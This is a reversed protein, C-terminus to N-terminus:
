GSNTSFVCKQPQIKRCFCQIIPSFIAWPQSQHYIMVSAFLQSHATAEVLYALNLGIRCNVAAGFNVEIIPNTHLHRPGSAPRDHGLKGTTAVLKRWVVCWVVVQEVLECLPSFNSLFLLHLALKNVRSHSQAPTTGLPLVGSRGLLGLLGTSAM